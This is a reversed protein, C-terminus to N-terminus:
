RVVASLVTMSRILWVVGGVIHSRSLLTVCVVALLVWDCNSYKKEKILFPKTISNLCNGVPFSVDLEQRDLLHTVHWTVLLM